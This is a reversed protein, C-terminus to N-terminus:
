METLPLRPTADPYIYLDQEIYDWAALGIMAANDTAWKIPPLFLDVGSRKCLSDAQSRLQSNAAVGGVIM